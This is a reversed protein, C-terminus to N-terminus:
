PTEVMPIQEVWLISKLQLRRLAASSSGYDRSRKIIKRVFDLEIFFSKGGHTYLDLRNNPDVFLNIKNTAPTDWWVQAYRKDKVLGLVEALTRPEFSTPVHDYYSQMRERDPGRGTNIVQKSFSEVGVYVTTTKVRVKDDDIHELYSIERVRDGKAFKVTSGSFKAFRNRRKKKLIKAQISRNVMAGIEM